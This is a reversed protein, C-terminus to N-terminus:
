TCMVLDTRRWVTAMVMPAAARVAHEPLPSPVGVSGAEAVLAGVAPNVALGVGSSCVAVGVGRLLEARASSRKVSGRDRSGSRIM